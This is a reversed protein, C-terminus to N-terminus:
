MAERRLRERLRQREKRIAAPTTSYREALAAIDGYDALLIALDRPSLGLEALELLLAEAEVQVERELAQAEPTDELLVEGRADLTRGDLLDCEIETRVHGRLWQYVQGLPLYGPVEKVALALAPMALDQWAQHFSADGRREAFHAELRAWRNPHFVAGRTFYKGALRALAETDNATRARYLDGYFSDPALLGERLTRVTDVLADKIGAAAERVADAVALAIVGGALRAQLADQAACLLTEVAQYTWDHLLPPREVWEVRMFPEVLRMEKLWGWELDHAWAKIFDSLIQRHQRDAGDM